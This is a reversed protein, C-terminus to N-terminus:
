NYVKVMFVYNQLKKIQQPVSLSALNSKSSNVPLRASTLSDPPISQIAKLLYRSKVAFAAGEQQTARSRIIGIINGRADWLPGGSNGPNVPISIEYALTDGHFGAASALYGRDYRLSDGPYGMTFVNEGLDTGSKKITYPLSGLPKFAADDIKLIALDFKPDAYVLRTHYSEGSVSQVYLSDAGNIVHYNTALYGDPSIAFGTGSYRGPNSFKAGAHIDHMLANTTNTLHETTHKTKEIEQKLEVFGNANRGTFYGSFFLTGLIAFIAISAAVSIKSHHNRWLQIVWFPKEAAEDAMGQVDMQEHIANMRSILANREGYGQLLGAFQIHENIRSNVEASSQRLKEFEELEASNLEGHLYRDTLEILLNNSM